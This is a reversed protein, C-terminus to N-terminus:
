LQLGSCALDSFAATHLPAPFHWYHWHVHEVSEKASLFLPVCNPLINLFIMEVQGPLKSPLSTSISATLLELDEKSVM